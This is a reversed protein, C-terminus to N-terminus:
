SIKGPFPGLSSERRHRCLCSRPLPPDSQGDVYGGGFVVIDGGFDVDSVIHKLLQVFVTHIM